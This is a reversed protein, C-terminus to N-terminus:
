SFIDKVYDDFRVLKVIFKDDQMQKIASEISIYPGGCIVCTNWLGFWNFLTKKNERYSTLKYVHHKDSNLKKALFVMGTESLETHRTEEWVMRDDVMKFGAEITKVSM